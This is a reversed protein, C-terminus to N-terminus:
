LGGDGGSSNGTGSDTPPQGFASGGAAFPSRGFGPNSSAATRSVTFGAGDSALASPQALPQGSNDILTIPQAATQGITVSKGNEVASGNTFQVAGFQDLPAVRRGGVPAEEIWEASSRSSNYTIDTQYAQGTTHDQMAIHWTNGTQQSIAVSISDGPSVTLAVTHSPQPLTEIWATYRVQGAVATADTGAQLLDRTQVGGIGVWTADAGPNGNANVSPVTWTGSVSTFTGGTAAYGAWNQSQGLGTAPAVAPQPAPATGPTSGASGAPSAGTAPQIDASIKWAGSQQTLTYVNQQQDQLVSGDNLATLWTEYTTAQATTGQVTVPGWNLGVLSIATVGSQALDQETQVMQSYYSPTATDAMVTPDQLAFAQEQEANARQIVAQIAAATTAPVTQAMAAPAAVAGALLGGLLIAAFRRPLTM